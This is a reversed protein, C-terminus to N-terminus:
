IYHYIIIIITKIIHSFELLRERRGFVGKSGIYVFM